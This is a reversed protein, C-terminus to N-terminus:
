KWTEWTVEGIGITSVTMLVLVSAELRGNVLVESEVIDGIEPKMRCGKVVVPTSECPCENILV